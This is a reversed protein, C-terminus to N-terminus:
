AAREELHAILQVGVWETYAPPLCEFLGNWTMDHEVGLLAKVVAKSPPVYGGRRVFKAEYKDRRAGGYAGAVWEHRAHDCPRPSRVTHTQGRVTIRQEVLGPIAWNVEFLRPRQLHIRVGDTDITSLGFMCGCLMIPDRLDWVADKVNEIVYPGGVSELAERIPPITREWRTETGRRPANGRTYWQCPPSTHIADYEHGHERIYTAADAIILQGPYYRAHRKDIDVGTVDWGARVYGAHAGGQCGHTELLKPRSV